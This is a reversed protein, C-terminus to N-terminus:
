KAQRPKKYIPVTSCPEGFMISKAVPRLKETIKLYAVPPIPHDACGKIIVREEAYQQPDIQDIAQGVKYGLYDAETGYYLERAFPQAYTAILMSAWMPIIADSSCNILLVQDQYQAWDHAKMAQRFDKEKLMLEMFLYDKIDLTAIPITPVFEELKLTILGSQAIRNVLPQENAM